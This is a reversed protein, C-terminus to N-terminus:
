NGTIKDVVKYMNSGHSGKILLLDGKKIEAKLFQYTKEIDDFHHAKGAAKVKNFLYKMDDGCTVIMDLGKVHEALEEHYKKSHEGLEKMIGLAAIKRKAKEATLKDLALKMSTPSANYSDDILTAGNKLEIKKGRGKFADMDELAKLASKLPVNCLSTVTLTLLVNNLVHRDLVSNPILIEENFIYAKAGADTKEVSNAKNGFAYIDTIANDEAVSHLLDFFENDGPIVAHGDMVLWEFIEAKAYAIKERSGLNEIHSEGVWTIAALDPNCIRVLESIEGEHNMGLELVAYEVDDPMNALTLPLGIHNNLNGETRYTKFKTSLSTYIMEKTGTKGVSGTIAIFKASSIKRRYKGLRQLAKLTDSVLITNDASYNEGDIIAAVAGKKIADSAFKNGDFNEGKLAVFLDGKEIKRSDTCVRKAKFALSINAGLAKGVSINDWVFAM